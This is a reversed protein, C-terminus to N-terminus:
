RGHRAQQAPRAAAGLRGCRALAGACVMGFLGCYCLVGWKDVRVQDILHNAFTMNLVIVTSALAWLASQLPAAPTPNSRLPPSPM